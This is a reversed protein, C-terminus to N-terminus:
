QSPNRISYFLGDIYVLVVGPNTYEYQNAIEPYSHVKSM